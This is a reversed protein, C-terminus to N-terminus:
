KPQAGEMRLNRKKREATLSHCELWNRTNQAALELTQALEVADLDRWPHDIDDDTEFQHMIAPVIEGSIQRQVEYLAAFLRALQISKNM